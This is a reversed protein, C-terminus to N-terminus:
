CKKLYEWFIIVNSKQKLAEIYEHSKKEYETGALNAQNDLREELKQLRDSFWTKIGSIVLNTINEATNSNGLEKEKKYENFSLRVLRSRTIGEKRAYEIIEEKVDKPLSIEMRGLPEPNLNSESNEKDSLSIVLHPLFIMM